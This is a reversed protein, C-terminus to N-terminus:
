YIRSEDDHQAQRPISQQITGTLRAVAPATDRMQAQPQQREHSEPLEPLSYENLSDRDAPLSSSPHAIESSPEAGAVADSPVPGAATPSSAAELGTEKSLSPELRAGSVGRPGRATPGTRSQEVQASPVVSESPAPPQSNRLMLVSTGAATFLAVLLLFTIIPAISEPIRGSPIAFPDWAPL